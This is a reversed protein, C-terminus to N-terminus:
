GGIQEENDYEGNKYSKLRENMANDRLKDGGKYLVAKGYGCKHRYTSHGHRVKLKRRRGGGFYENMINNNEYYGEETPVDHWWDQAVRNVMEMRRKVKRYRNFNRYENMIM